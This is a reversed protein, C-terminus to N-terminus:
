DLSFHRWKGVPQLPSVRTVYVFWKASYTTKQEPKSQLFRLSKQWFLYPCSFFKLLSPRERMNFDYFFSVLVVKLRSYLTQPANARFKTSALVSFNDEKFRRWANGAGWLVEAHHEYAQYSFFTEVVPSRKQWSLSLSSYIDAWRWGFLWPPANRSSM